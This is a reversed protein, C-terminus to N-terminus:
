EEFIVTTKGWCDGVRKHDPAFKILIIGIAGCFPFDVIDLIHRKLSCLFPFEKKDEYVVKLDFLGKGLTYGFMSEMYPFLIVWLIFIIFLHHIGHVELQGNSRVEGFLYLYGYFLSFFVFYDLFAAYCRFALLKDSMPSNDKNIENEMDNNM